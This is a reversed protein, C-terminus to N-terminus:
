CKIFNFRWFNYWNKPGGQINCLCVVSKCITDFKFLNIAYPKKHCTDTTDYVVGNQPLIDITMSSHSTIIEVNKL